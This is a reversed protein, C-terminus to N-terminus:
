SNKDFSYHQLITTILSDTTGTAMIDTTATTAMTAMTGMILPHQALAKITFPRLALAKILQQPYSDKTTSLHPDSGKITIITTITTTTTLGSGKNISMEKM